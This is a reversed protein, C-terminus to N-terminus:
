ILYKWLLILLVIIFLLSYNKNYKQQFYEVNGDYKSLSNVDNKLNKLGKLFKGEDSEKSILQKM